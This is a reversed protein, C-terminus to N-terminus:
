GDTQMGRYARVLKYDAPRLLLGPTGPVPTAFYGDDSVTWLEQLFLHGPDPWSSAYSESGFRGGVVRGDGLEVQLWCEGDQKGFFDDRATKAQIVIWGQYEALHLLTVLLIPWFVPAIVFAIILVVWAFILNERVVPLGSLWHVPLWVVVFNLLSFCVAEIVRDKLQYERQPVKLGYVYMSIAGPLVFGAFLLLQDPKIEPM